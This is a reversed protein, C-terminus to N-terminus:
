IENVSPLIEHINVIREYKKLHVSKIAAMILIIDLSLTLYWYGFIRLLDM